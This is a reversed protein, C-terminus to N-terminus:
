IILIVVEGRKYFWRTAKQLEKINKNKKRLKIGQESGGAPLAVVFEDRVKIAEPLSTIGGLYQREQKIVRDVYYVTSGDPLLNYYIHPENPVSQYAM